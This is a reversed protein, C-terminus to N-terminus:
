ADQKAEGKAASQHRVDDAENETCTKFKAGLEDM